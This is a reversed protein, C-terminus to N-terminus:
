MHTYVYLNSLALYNIFHLALNIILPSWYFLVLPASIYVAINAPLLKLTNNIIIVFNLKFNCWYLM